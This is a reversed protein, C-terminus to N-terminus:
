RRTPRSPATSPSATPRASRATSAASSGPRSAARSASRAASRSSPTASGFSRRRAARCAARPRPPQQLRVLAIDTSPDSGAVVGGRTANRRPLARDGRQTGAVVHFNTVVRGDEDWVFGSGGASEGGPVGPASAEGASIIEVVGPGARRYVDSVSVGGSSPRAAEQPDDDLAEWAAGGVLGGAFAAVVAALVPALRNMRRAYDARTPRPRRARAACCTFGRLRRGHAAVSCALDSGFASDSQDLTCAERSKALARRPDM